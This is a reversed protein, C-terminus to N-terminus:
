AIQEAVQSSMNDQEPVATRDVFPSIDLRKKLLRFSKMDIPEWGVCRFEVRDLVHPCVALAIKGVAHVLVSTMQASMQMTRDSSNAIRLFQKFRADLM